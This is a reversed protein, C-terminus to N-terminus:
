QLIDLTASIGGHLLRRRPTTQERCLRVYEVARLSEFFAILSPEDAAVVGRGLRLVAAAVNGSDALCLLDAGAALAEFSAYSFTEPWTSLGLVLDVQQEALADIMAQPREPTTAALHHQMGPTESATEASGFHLFQYAGTQSTRRALEQWLPWGKHAKAYGIFGLRVPGKAVPRAPADPWDALECHPHARATLHPLGAHALWIALAAESPAVVHFAVADFLARVQSLHASRRKGHVCVRCAVSGMPPAKCFTVDNRLLTYGTCISSYDHVWFVSSASASAQHLAVLSAVHHGLVCHVLFSRREGKRPKVKRLAAALDSQSAIGLFAGGLVLNYM